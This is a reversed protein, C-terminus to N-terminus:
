ILQKYIQIMIEVDYQAEHLRSDDVQIGLHKAVTSQQFNLMLHRENMLKQSALVMIDISSSWFYSGFYNDLNQVFFARFFQNDFSANNYGVLFFKDAKNYKDVYKALLKCVCTYCDKFPQYEKLTDETIGSIALAESEILASSYPQVHFNFYEKIDGDIEVAGSIQHIGNKWFKVGTTELDFYFLKAM